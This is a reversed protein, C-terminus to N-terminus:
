PTSLDLYPTVDYDFMEFDPRFMDYLEIVQSRSLQKFYELSVNDRDRSSSKRNAWPLTVNVEKLGSRETIFDIDEQLTEM